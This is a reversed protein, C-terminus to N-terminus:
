VSENTGSSIGSVVQTKIVGERKWRSDFVYFGVSFRRQSGHCYSRTGADSDREGPM